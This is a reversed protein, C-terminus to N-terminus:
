TTASRRIFVLLTAAITGPRGPAAEGGDVAGASKAGPAVTLTATPGSFSSSVLGIAAAAWFLCRAKVEPADTFGDPHV